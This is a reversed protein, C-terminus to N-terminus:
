QIISMQTATTCQENKENQVNVVGFIIYNYAYEADIIYIITTAGRGIEDTTLSVKEDIIKYFASFDLLSQAFIQTIIKTEEQPSSNFEMEIAINANRLLSPDPKSNKTLCDQKKQDYNLSEITLNAHCSTEDLLADVRTSNIKKSIKIPVREVLIVKAIKGADAKAKNETNLLPYYQNISPDQSWCNLSFIFILLLFIIKKM